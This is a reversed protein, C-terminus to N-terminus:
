SADSTALEFAIAAGARAEDVVYARGGHRVAVDRV